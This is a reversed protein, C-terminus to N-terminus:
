LKDGRMFYDYNDMDVLFLLEIGNNRSTLAIFIGKFDDILTQMTISFKDSTIFHYNYPFAYPILATLYLKGKHSNAISFKCEVNDLGDLKVTKDTFIESM